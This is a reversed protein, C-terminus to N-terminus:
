KISLYQRAVKLCERLNKEPNLNLDDFLSSLVNESEENSLCTSCLHATNIVYIVPKEQKCHCCSDEEKIHRPSFSHTGPDSDIMYNGEVM